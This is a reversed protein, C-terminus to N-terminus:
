WKKRWWFVLVLLSIMFCLRLVLVRRITDFFKLFNEFCNFGLIPAPLLSWIFLNDENKRRLEELKVFFCHYRSLEVIQRQETRNTHMWITPFNESKGNFESAISAFAGQHTLNYWKESMIHTKIIWNLEHTNHGITHLNLKHLMRLSRAFLRNFSRVNESTEWTILMEVNKKRRWRYNVLAHIVKGFM